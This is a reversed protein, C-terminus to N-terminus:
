TSIAYEAVFKKSAKRVVRVERVEYRWDLFATCWWQQVRNFADEGAKAATASTAYLRAKELDQTVLPSVPNQQMKLYGPAFDNQERVCSKMNPKMYGRRKLSKLYRAYEARNHRSDEVFLAYMTKNSM